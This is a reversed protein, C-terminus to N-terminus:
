LTEQRKLVWVGSAESLTEGNRDKIRGKVVWKKATKEVLGCEVRIIGPAPTPARFTVNLNATYLTGQVHRAEARNAWVCLSLCQDLIACIMGGHLTDAIGWMGAGLQLLFICDLGDRIPSSVSPPLTSSAVPSLAKTTGPGAEIDQPFSRHLLWLWHSVTRSTKLTDGFFTDERPGQIGERFSTPALRYQDTDILNRTWEISSFHLVAEQLNTSADAQGDREGGHDQQEM